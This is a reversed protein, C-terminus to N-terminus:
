ELMTTLIWEGRLLTKALAPVVLAQQTGLSGLTLICDILMAQYALELLDKFVTTDVACLHMLELSIHCRLLVQQNLL